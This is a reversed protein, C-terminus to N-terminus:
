WDKPLSSGGREKNKQLREQAAKEKQELLKLKQEAEKQSMKSQPKQQQKRNQQNDNSSSQKKLEQLAKQLNDRAENDDPNNRLAYKYSEISEELKKQRTHIVGQNYFSSARIGADDLEILQAYINQAETLKDQRVLTAALNYQAKANNGDAGLAKRYEDEAEAYQQQQFFDNGKAIHSEVQQASVVFVLLSTCLYFIYKKM